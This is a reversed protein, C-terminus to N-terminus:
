CRTKTCPMPSIVCKILFTPHLKELSQPTHIDHLLINHFTYSFIYKVSNKMELFAYLCMRGGSEM